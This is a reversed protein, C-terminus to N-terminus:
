VSQSLTQNRGPAGQLRLVEECKGLSCPEHTGQSPRPKNPMSFCRQIPSLLFLDFSSTPMSAGFASGIRETPVTMKADPM